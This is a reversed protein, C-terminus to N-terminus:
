PDLSCFVATVALPLVFRFLAVETSTDRCSVSHYNFQQARLKEHGVKIFSVLQLLPGKM